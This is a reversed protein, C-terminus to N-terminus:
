ARRARVVRGDKVNIRISNSLATIREGKLARYTLLYRGDRLKRGDVRLNWGFHARRGKRATGLPVRGVVMIRPVTRGLLKRKGTVRVVFIGIKTTTSM